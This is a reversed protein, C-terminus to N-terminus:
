GEADEDMRDIAAKLRQYHGHELREIEWPKLGFHYAFPVVYDDLEDRFDADAGDGRAHGLRM